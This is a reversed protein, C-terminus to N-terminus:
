SLTIAISHLDACRWRYQEALYIDIALVGKGTDMEFTYSM